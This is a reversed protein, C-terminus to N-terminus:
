PAQKKKFKLYDIGLVADETQPSDHIVLKLQNKGERLEVPGLDLSRDRPTGTGSFTETRVTKGNIVFSLKIKGENALFRAIMGYKGPDNCIFELTVEDGTGGGSWMKASRTWRPKGPVPVPRIRVSGDGSLGALILDEGEIINKDNMTPPFIQERKLVVEERVGEIDRPIDCAGGPKMYWYTIPAHNMITYGWHWMEMDFDLQERFPIADLSRYRINLTYGVALNGSGDPQAIFPHIFPEPRCWAYGYYDETGTGFHSPIEEHDVFIKEDGEGWWAPSCNFLTVGDGVYVGQGNLTTYSLDYFDGHGDRDKELGTNIRTNQYWSSGFYMSRGNWKWKSSSIEGEVEVEQDGYNILTMRSSRQFPMIWFSQMTGDPSVEQYWTNCPTIRYGAGFFDGVPAWITQEGDFVIQLVTSRLAQPLNEADLKLEIKRVARSGEIIIEKEAGPALKESFTQTELALQKLGRDREKLKRRTEAIVQRYEDLHEMSFTEVRIGM